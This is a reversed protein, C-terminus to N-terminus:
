VSEGKNMLMTLTDVNELLAEFTREVNALRTAATLVLDVADCQEETANICMNSVIKRAQDLNTM